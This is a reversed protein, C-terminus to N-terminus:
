IRTNNEPFHFWEHIEELIANFSAQQIHEQTPNENHKYARRYGLALGTEVCQELLKLTNPQM